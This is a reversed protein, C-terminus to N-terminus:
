WGAKRPTLKHWCQGLGRQHLWLYAGCLCVKPRSLVILVRQHPRALCPLFAQNM